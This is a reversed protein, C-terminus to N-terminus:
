AGSFGFVEGKKIAINLGDVAMLSNYSKTLDQAEIMYDM